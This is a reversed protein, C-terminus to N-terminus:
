PCFALRTRQNYPSRFWKNVSGATNCHVTFGVETISLSMNLINRTRPLIHMFYFRIPCTVDM